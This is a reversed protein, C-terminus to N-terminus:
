VGVKRRLQQVETYSAHVFECIMIVFAVALGSALFLFVGVMNSLTVKDSKTNTVAFLLIDLVDLGHFEGLLM